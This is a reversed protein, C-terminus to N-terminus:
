AGDGMRTHSRDSARLQKGFVMLILIVSFGQSMKFFEEGLGPGIAFGLFQHIPDEAGMWNLSTEVMLFGNLLASPITSIFGALVFLLLFGVRPMTWRYKVMVLIIFLLLASWSCLALLSM